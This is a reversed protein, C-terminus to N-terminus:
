CCWSRTTSDSLEETYASSKKEGEKEIAIITTIGIVLINLRITGM